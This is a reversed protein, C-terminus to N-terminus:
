FPLFPLSGIYFNEANWENIGRIMSVRSLDLEGSLWSAMSEIPNGSESQKENKTWQEVDAVVSLHEKATFYEPVLDAAHEALSRQLNAYAMSRNDKRDVAFKAWIQEYISKADNEKV